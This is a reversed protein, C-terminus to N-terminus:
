LILKFHSASTIKVRENLNQIYLTETPQPEASAEPAAIAEVVATESPSTPAVGDMPMPQAQVSM